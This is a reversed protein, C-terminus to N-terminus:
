NKITNKLVLANGQFGGERHVQAGSDPLKSENSVDM